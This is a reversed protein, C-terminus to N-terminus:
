VEVVLAKAPSQQARLSSKLAEALAERKNPPYSL